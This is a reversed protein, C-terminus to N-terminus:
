STSTNRLVLATTPSSMPDLATFATSNFGNTVVYRMQAGSSKANYGNLAVFAGLAVDIQGQEAAAFMAPLASFSRVEVDTINADEFYGADIAMQVQLADSPQQTGVTITRTNSDAGGGEDLGSGCASLTLGLTCTLVAALSRMSPNM